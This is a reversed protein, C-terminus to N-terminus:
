HRAAIRARQAPVVETLAAHSDAAVGATTTLWDTVNDICLSRLHSTVQRVIARDTKRYLAAANSVEGSTEPASAAPVSVQAGVALRWGRM